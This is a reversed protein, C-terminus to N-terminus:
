HPFRRILARLMRRVNKIAAVLQEAKETEIVGVERAVELHHETEAASGSAIELYRLTEARSNKGCGEAINTAISLASRRLQATVLLDSRPRESCLVYISIGLSKAEHWVRLRRFDHM